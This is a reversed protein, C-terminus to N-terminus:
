ESAAGLIAAIVARIASAADGYRARFRAALFGDQGVPPLTAADIADAVALAESSVGRPRLIRRGGVIQTESGDMGRLVAAIREPLEAEPMLALQTDLVVGAAGGIVAAAATHEGIGGASWIPVGLNAAVLQQLLVFSSLEAVDLRFGSDARVGFRGVAGDASRTWWFALELARRAAPGSRGLDVIGTAGARCAAAALRANPLGGPGAVLVSERQNRAPSLVPASPM